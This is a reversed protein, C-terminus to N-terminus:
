REWVQGEGVLTAAYRGIFAFMSVFRVLQAGYPHEGRRVVLLGDQALPTCMCVSASACAYTPM